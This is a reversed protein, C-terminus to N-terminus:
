RPSSPQRRRVPRPGCKRHPPTRRGFLRGDSPQIVSGRRLGPSCPHPRLTELRNVKCVFEISTGDDHAYSYEIEAEIMIKVPGHGRELFRALAHRGKKVDLLLYDSEIEPM